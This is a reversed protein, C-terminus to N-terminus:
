ALPSAGDKDDILIVTVQVGSAAQITLLLSKVDEFGCHNVFPCTLLQLWLGLEGDFEMVDVIILRLEAFFNVGAAYRLPRIDTLVAKM